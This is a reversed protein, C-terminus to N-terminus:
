TNVQQLVRVNLANKFTEINPLKHSYSAYTITYYTQGEALFNNDSFWGANINYINAYPSPDQSGTRRSSKSIDNNNPINSLVGGDGGSHISRSESSRDNGDGDSSEDSGYGDGACQIQSPDYEIWLFPVTENVSVRFEVIRDSLSKFGNLVVLPYPALRARKIPTLFHYVPHIMHLAMEDVPLSQHSTKEHTIQRMIESEKM